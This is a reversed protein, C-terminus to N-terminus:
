AVGRARFASRLTAATEQPALGSAIAAAALADAVLQAEILGAAVFRALGHAENNLTSNRIGEGARSVRDIASRLAAEVYRDGIVLPVSVTSQTSLTAPAPSVAELLWEPWPAPDADCLVPL